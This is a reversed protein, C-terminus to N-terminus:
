MFTYSIYSYFVPKTPQENHTAEVMDMETVSAKELEVGDDSKKSPVTLTMKPDARQGNVWKSEMAAGNKYFLKGSGHFLDDAFEGEYRDSEEGGHHNAYYYVGKGHRKGNVMEGEYLKLTQGEALVVYQTGSGNPRDDKWMGVYEQGFPYYATGKGERRDALWHGEYVLKGRISLKGVGQKKDEKWDGEYVNDGSVSTGRGSRLGALFGGEYSDGHTFVLKGIGNFRGELFTGTYNVGIALKLSGSGNMADLRWEGEYQDGNGFKMVGRGHRKGDKFEGEYM